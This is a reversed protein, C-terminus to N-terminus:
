IGVVSVINLLYMYAVPVIMSLGDVPGMNSVYMYHKDYGILVTLCCTKRM